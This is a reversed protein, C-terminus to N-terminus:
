QDNRVSIEDIFIYADGGAGPHPPPLTGYNKVYIKIYRAKKVESKGGLTIRQHHHEDAPLTQTVHLAEKYREGDSSAFFTVEKPFVIWAKYDQLFSAELYPIRQKEGLDIILELDTGQYGQWRGKRWEVDGMLGDVLANPGGATYQPHVKSLVKVSWDNPLQHFTATIVESRKGTTDVHQANVTTTARIQFPGKYSISPAKGDVSYLTKFGPREEISVEALDRFPYPPGQVVPVPVFDPWIVEAKPRLHPKEAWSPYPQPGLVVDMNVGATIFHHVLWSNPLPEANVLVQQVYLDSSQKRLARVEFVKDEEMPIRVEPFLPTGLVYHGSGPVVPYFGMASFVYWASMQGCDENGPLGDPTPRYLDRIKVIQEASKWPKGIYNYLYAMHHSPENGQAYQGILGTIDAQARGTTESNTSFMLDLQAEFGAPGGMQDILYSIDHQAAFNYQWGNAETYHNNVQRPDFPELWGGNSRPRAFGINPDILNRYGVSRELFEEFVDQNRLKKALQAICWDDYAYELTKSVSESEDEIELFGKTTYADLGFVKARATQLMAELAAEEDIGSIRKQIADWIVSVAHYGIMCNTENSALEWVPLRGSQEFQLLMTRIFDRTRDKDIITLLPHLARYTDWLSFVTYYTFGKTFHIEKDMGRYRGDVDSAINPHIMCHYLATYFNTLDDRDDGLVQVKTLEQNWSALAKARVGEFNWDPCEKELNRLAGDVSVHSLGVKVLIPQSGEAFTFSAALDQGFIAGTRNPDAKGHHHVVWNAIPENFDMVFYIVQDVAWSSSRRMGTVRHNNVVELTSELVADRHRLDLIINRTGAQGFQYRHMGVRATTTMEAEIGDDELRVRYYGPNAVETEHRFTSKYVEPDISPRGSMPSILIDCYDAVGTGSLHTHSFGYIAQDDYHYGSCGDWGELRTDPSLQVMGFPTTAGPFTHGHGGTGVFPNVFEDYPGQAALATSVFLLLIAIKRM